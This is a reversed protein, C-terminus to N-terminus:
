SHEREGNARRRDVETIDENDDAAAGYWKWANQRVFEEYSWLEDSLDQEDRYTYTEAAVLPLMESASALPPPHAPLTQENISHASIDKFEDLPHAQIM